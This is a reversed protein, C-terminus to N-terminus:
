FIPTGRLKRGFLHNLFLGIQAREPLPILTRQHSKQDCKQHLRKRQDAVSNAPRWKQPAFCSMPIQSLRM